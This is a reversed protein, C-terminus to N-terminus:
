KTTTLIKVASPEWMHGSTRRIVTTNLYLHISVTPPISITPPFGAVTGSPGGCVECSSVQTQFPTELNLIWTSVCGSDYYPRIKFGSTQWSAHLNMELRVSFVTPRRKLPWGTLTTLTIFFDRFIKIITLANFYITHAFHFNKINCCPQLQITIITVM